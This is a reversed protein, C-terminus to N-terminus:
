HALRLRTRVVLLPSQQRLARIQQLISDVKMDSM